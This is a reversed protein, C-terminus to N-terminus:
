MYPLYKHHRCWPTGELGMTLVMHSGLEIVQGTTLALVMVLSSLGHDILPDERALVVAFGRLLSPSAGVPVAQVSQILM